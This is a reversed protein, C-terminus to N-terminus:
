VRLENHVHTIYDPLHASQLAQGLLASNSDKDTPEHYFNVMVMFVYNTRFDISSFYM